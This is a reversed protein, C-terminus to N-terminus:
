KIIAKKDVDRKEKHYPNLKVDCVTHFGWTQQARWDKRTKRSKSLLLDCTKRQVRSKQMVSVVDTLLLILLFSKPQSKTEAWWLLSSLISCSGEHHQTLSLLEKCCLPGLFLSCFRFHAFIIYLWPAEELSCSGSFGWKRITEHIRLIFNGASSWVDLDHIQSPCKMNLGLIGWGTNMEYRRTVLDLCHARTLYMVLPLMGKREFHDTPLWWVDGDWVQLPVLRSGRTLNHLM